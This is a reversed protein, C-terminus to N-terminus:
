GPEIGPESAQVSWEWHDLLVTSDFLADSSDWIAFRIEMTEGPTVNGSMTLWGTGGGHRGAYNCSFPTAGTIDFGTGNLLSTGQCGNYNSATGCQTIQGNTCQTFLGNAAKLINVGVPYNNNGQTYIAINKDSPNGNDSSDVLTVFFDNFATCVYEPYEASFFFMKASFSNANTPVRIRLKLLVPDNAQNGAVDPCGPANPLSNGNLSYWDAPFTSSTGMSQGDQYQAFSPNSDNSDAAHGTSMVALRQGKSPTINSGFGPRVSRSNANPSGTGNARHLGGSIVGWIKDAGQANETTFQCLDIAKAYDLANGTNSAIGNDCLPLPNDKVGDCDDDVDNGDVEFAGPNVLDPNQCAPGVSDCCDGGCVTYGDNDADPDEDVVGDCNDDKNNACIDDSLPLVEGECAGWGTGNENCTQTGAKCEGVGETQPLGTYCDQQEGPSCLCSGQNECGNGPDGDCNDFGDECAFGCMGDTCTALANQLVECAVDCGGCNLPDTLADVCSEACCTAGDQCPQQDNCGPECVGDVCVTGLGCDGDSVCGTCVNNDVDCVADGNCDEDADCGPECEGTGMDCFQGVPCDEPACLPPETTDSVGETTGSTTEDTTTTPEPGATTEAGSDTGGTQTPDTMADTSPGGTPSSTPTATTPSTTVGTAGETTASESDGCAPLQFAFVM